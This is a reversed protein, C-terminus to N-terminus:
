KGDWERALMSYVVQDAFRDHLWDSEREIGERTFGLREPIRQSRTNEIACKIVIRNFGMEGFAHGLLKKTCRTAIGRGAHDESVWYGIEASRSARDIGHFGTEGIVKGNYFTRLHIASGDNFERLNREYFERADDLSYKEHLWRTWRILYDYNAMVANYSEELSEEDPFRMELENDVPLILM